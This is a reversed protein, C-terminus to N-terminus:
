SNCGFFNHCANQSITEVLLMYMGQGLHSGYARREEGVPMPRSGPVVGITSTGVLPATEFVKLPGNEGIVRILKQLLVILERSSESAAINDGYSGSM